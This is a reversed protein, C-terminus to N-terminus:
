DRRPRRGRDGGGGERKKGGGGTDETLPAEGREAREANIKDTLDEGTEQDVVKMSLKTKGRDDFGLFKVKVEQGESLVDAPNAVRELAIQSVHVLGDKAGFFNVFAGFDVVKVVKGTYIMGVEPESVISSIWNKAADIKEQDSAAIKVTGDDEINVKAGTKEVIERIIKGGTGIIDRIKDVPVKISEIKPRTSVSSPAPATSPRTWRTSSTCAAPRLRPSRRAEHDRRHHGHGQHGDAALHHRRPAPSRSTWTASTIKMVWSTRCSPSSASPELILGMAIGSVPRILPVGADMLALSAGCVTAMSSSGNSETIESVLRITYPFDEAAPLMPRIARWALKGHGIERRGAGAWVAPKV